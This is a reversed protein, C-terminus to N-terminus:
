RSVRQVGGFVIQIELGPDKHVAGVEGGSYHQEIIRKVFYLGLGHGHYEDNDANHGLEFPDFIKEKMTKGVGRGNDTFTLYLNDERHEFKVLIKRKRNKVHSLSEISNLYLHTLICELDIKSMNVKLESGEDEVQIDLDDKKSQFGNLVTEWCDNISVQSPKSKRKKADAVHKGMVNLFKMFHKMKQQNDGLVELMERGRELMEETAVNDKLLAERMEEGEKTIEMNATLATGVERSMNSAAIGIMAINNEWDRLEGMKHVTEEAEEMKDDTMRKLGTILTKAFRKDKTPLKGCITILSRINKERDEDPDDPNGGQEIAKKRREEKKWEGANKRLSELIENKIMEQLELFAENRIITERHSAQRIEPNKKKTLYIAGYFEKIGLKSSSQIKATDIGLWDNELGYPKFWFGDRYLMVNFNKKLFKNLLELGVHNDYYIEKFDDKIKGMARPFHWVEMEFPGINSKEYSKNVEQKEWQKTGWYNWIQIKLDEGDFKAKLKLPAAKLVRDKTKVYSKSADEGNIIVTFNETDESLALGVEDRLNEINKGIWNKELEHIFLTVGPKSGKSVIEIPDDFKIDEARVGPKDFKSWDFDMQLTKTQNKKVSIMQLSKGLKQCAFRGIGKEGSVTNGSRMKSNKIRNDTGVVMWKNEIDDLNMGDGDDRIEIEGKKITVECITANADRANKILELIATNESAISDKGLHNIIRGAFTLTIAM